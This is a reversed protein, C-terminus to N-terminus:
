WARMKALMEGYLPYTSDFPNNTWIGNIWYKTHGCEEHHVGVEIKFLSINIHIWDGEAPVFDTEQSAKQIWYEKNDLEEELKSVQISNEAIEIIKDEM